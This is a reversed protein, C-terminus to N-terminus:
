DLRDFVEQLREGIRELEKEVSFRLNDLADRFEYDRYYEAQLDNYKDTAQMVTEVLESENKLTDAIDWGNKVAEAVLPLIDSALYMKIAARIDEQTTM